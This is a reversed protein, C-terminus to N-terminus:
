QLALAEGRGEYLPALLIRAGQSAIAAEIALPDERVLM